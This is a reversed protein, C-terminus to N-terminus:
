GHAPRSTLSANVGAPTIPVKPPWNSKLTSQFTPNINECPTDAWPSLGVRAPHGTGRIYCNQTPDLGTAPAGDPFKSSICIRPEVWFSPHPGSLRWPVRIDGACSLCCRHPCSSGENISQFLESDLLCKRRRDKRRQWLKEEM